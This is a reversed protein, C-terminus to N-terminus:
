MLLLDCLWLTALTRASLPRRRPRIPFVSHRQKAAPLSALTEGDEHVGYFLVTLKDNLFAWVSNISWSTEDAHVVANRVLLTCLSDLEQEWARALRNLLADAQSKRLRLKQFFSLVARAKDISLGLCYVQYGIAVLIEIGFEGRDM